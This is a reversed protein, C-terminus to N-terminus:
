PALSGGAEVRRLMEDQERELEPPVILRISQGVAEAASHGFIQEAARNWSTITGTLDQAIVAADASAAARSRAVGNFFASSM